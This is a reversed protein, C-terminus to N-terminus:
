CVDNCFETFMTNVCCESLGRASSVVVSVEIVSRPVKNSSVEGSVAVVWNAASM